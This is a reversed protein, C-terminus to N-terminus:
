SVYYGLKQSTETGCALWSIHELARGAREWQSYFAQWDVSGDIPSGTLLYHGLHMSLKSGSVGNM